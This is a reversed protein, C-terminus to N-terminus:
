VSLVARFGLPVWRLPRAFPIAREGSTWRGSPLAAHSDVMSEPSPTGAGHRGDRSRRTFSAHDRRRGSGTPAGVGSRRWAHPGQGVGADSAFASFPAHERLDRALFVCGGLSRRQYNSPPTNAGSWALVLLERGLGRRASAQHRIGQHRTGPAQHRIGPEHHRHPAQHRRRTRRWGSGQPLPPQSTPRPMTPPLTSAGPIAVAPM